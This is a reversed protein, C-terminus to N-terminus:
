DYKELDQSHAKSHPSKKKLHNFHRPISFVAGYDKM